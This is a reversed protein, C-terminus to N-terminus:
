SLIHETKGNTLYTREVRKVIVDMVKLCRLTLERDIKRERHKTRRSWERDMEHAIQNRREYFDKLEAAANMAIASRSDRKLDDWFHSISFLRLANEIGSPSQYTRSILHKEVTKRFQVYPRARGLMQLYDLTGFLEEALKNVNNLKQHRDARTINAKIFPVLNDFVIQHMYADLSSMGMILGSRLLDACSEHGKGEKRRQDYVYVMKRARRINARFALLAEM